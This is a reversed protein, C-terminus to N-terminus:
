GAAEGAATLGGGADDLTFRFTAGQDVAADAWIRGGHMHVIRAVTALGIGTGEFERGSHLRQFAGFLKGAYTMDFGAGNDRVFYVPRPAGGEMGFAIQAQPRRRTFKWANGLLNELAIRLLREDGVASVGAQIDAVVRRAPEGHRLEEVIAGAVASLDVGGPAPPTRAIRSLRLLDDILGAMRQAAARVRALTQHDAPALREGADELLAQSFGDIARLPARLDHSVSHCFAELEHNAAALRANLRRTAQEARRRQGIERRLAMVVAALLAMSLAAGALLSLRTRRISAVLARDRAALLGTEASEMGALSARLWDMRRKGALSDALSSGAAGLARRRAIGRDLGDLEAGAAPALADLRRQQRPNDATLARLRAIWAPVAAAGSVYPALFRDDGTLMYGREGTEADILAGLLGRLEGIVQYTHQRWTADAALRDANRVALWLVAALMALALLFALAAARPRRPSFRRSLM